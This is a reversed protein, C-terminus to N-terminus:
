GVIEAPIMRIFKESNDRNDLYLAQLDSGSINEFQYAPILVDDGFMMTIYERIEVDRLKKLEIVHDCRSSRLLAPDLNEIHNTTAFLVNNSFSAIGDLANLITSLSVRSKRGTGFSDKEEDDDEKSGDGERTKTAESADLDEFVIFSGEPISNLSAQFNSDEVANINIMYINRNFHSALAFILSSKGMGPAGHLVYVLKHNIGKDEYWTRSNNFTEIQSVMDSKVKADIVVSSLRRKKRSLTPVWSPEYSRRDPTHIVLVDKDIDVSIEKIFEEIISRSTGLFNVDIKTLNPGDKSGGPQRNIWGFRGKYTFFHLGSGPSLVGPTGEPHDGYSFRKKLAKVSVVEDMWFRRSRKASETAMYWQTIAQILFRVRENTGMGAISVTVVFRSKIFLWLNSPVKRMLLTLVGAAWVAIGGTIVPSSLFAKNLTSGLISFLEM